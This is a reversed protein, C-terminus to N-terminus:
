SLELLECCEEIFEKEAHDNADAKAAQLYSGAPDWMRMNSAGRAEEGEVCLSVHIGM